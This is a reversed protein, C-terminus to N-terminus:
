WGSLPCQFSKKGQNELASKDVVILFSSFIMTNARFVEAVHGKKGTQLAVPSAQYLLRTLFHADAWINHFLTHFILSATQDLYRSQLTFLMLGDVKM